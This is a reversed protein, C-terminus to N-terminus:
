FVYNMIVHVAARLGDTHADILQAWYYRMM